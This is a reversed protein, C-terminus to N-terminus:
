EYQIELSLNAAPLAKDTVSLAGGDPLLDVVLEELNGKTAEYIGPPDYWFLPRSDYSLSPRSLKSRLTLKHVGPGSIGELLSCTRCRPMTQGSM